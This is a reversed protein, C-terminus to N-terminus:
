HVVCQLPPSVTKSRAVQTSAATLSDSNIITPDCQFRKDPKGTKLLHFIVAYDYGSHNHLPKRAHVRFRKRPQTTPTEDDDVVTERDFEGHHNKVFIGDGQSRVFAFGEPLVWILKTTRRHQGIDMPEPTVTVEDAQSVAVSACVYDASTCKAPWDLAGCVAPLGVLGIVAIKAVLRSTNPM